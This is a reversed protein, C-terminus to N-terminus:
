SSFNVNGGEVNLFSNEVERIYNIIEADNVATGQDNVSKFLRVLQPDARPSNTEKSQPTSPEPEPTDLLWEFENAFSSDVLDPKILDTM